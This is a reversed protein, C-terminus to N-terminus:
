LQTLLARFSHDPPLLDFGVRGVIFPIDDLVFVDGVCSSRHGYLIGDHMPLPIRVTVLPSFDGNPMGDGLRSPKSWSGHINQTREYAFDLANEGHLGGTNVDAIHFFLPEGGQRNAHFIRVSSM